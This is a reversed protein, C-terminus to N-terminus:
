KVLVCKKVSTFSKSPDAISIADLRYFYIGSPLKSANWEVQKHGAQQLGETLTQVVQGLLNYFKLTVHSSTPLEYKITTSPNFPNPFNPFLAFTSPLVPNELVSLVVNTKSFSFFGNDSESTVCLLGNRGAKFDYWSMKPYAFPTFSIGADTSRYHAITNGGQWNWLINIGQQSDVCIKSDYATDSGSILVPPNFSQGQNTSRAVRISSYNLAIGQSYCIYVTGTSDVALSPYDNYNHYPATSTDVRVRGQLTKGTDNSRAYFVYRHFNSLSDFYSGEWPCHVVLDKTALLCTNSGFMMSDNPILIDSRQNLDGHQFKTLKVQQDDWLMYVSNQDDVALKQSFFGDAWAYSRFVTTFTKASDVSKSLNVFYPDFDGGNTSLWLLWVNGLHDVSVDLPWRVSEALPVYLYKQWTDGGNSSRAVFINKSDPSFATYINGSDDLAMEGGAYGIRSSTDILVPTTWEGQARLMGEGAFLCLGITIICLFSRSFSKGNSVIAPNCISMQRCFQIM